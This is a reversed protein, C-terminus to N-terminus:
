VAAEAGSFTDCGPQCNMSFWCDDDQICASEVQELSGEEVGVLRRTSVTQPKIEHLASIAVYVHVLGM